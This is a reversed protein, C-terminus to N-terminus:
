NHSHRWICCSRGLLVLVMALVEGCRESGMVGVDVNIRVVDDAWHVQRVVLAITAQLTLEMCFMGDRTGELWTGSMM